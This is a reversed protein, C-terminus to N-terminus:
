LRISIEGSSLAATEGDDYRVILRCEGDVDLARARRVTDGSIVSVDKGLAISRHRYEDVFEASDLRSYIEMFRKVFAAALRSRADQQRHTLIYGATDAIEPPFGGDPEYVNLGIGLAAYDLSGSEMSYSAETLIGSVKKGRVFIDNVWKIGATEGTLSEIADCAAVATATTILVAREAPLVPRLLVSIYVGTGKPSFFSRGRRGRGATQEAAIIVTGEPAGQEALKRALDLTSSVCRHVEIREPPIVGTLLEKILAPSLVDADSSLMYGRNTVASIDVGEDQLAKVAKWVATRTVGLEEAAAAGSTYEGRNKLLLELVADRTTM